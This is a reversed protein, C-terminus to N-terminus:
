LSFFYRNGMEAYLKHVNTCHVNYMTCMHTSFIELYYRGTPLVTNKNSKCCFQKNGQM